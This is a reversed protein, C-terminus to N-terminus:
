GAEIRIPAPQEALGAAAPPPARRLKRNLFRSLPKEVMLHVGVGVLASVAVGLMLLSLDQASAPIPSRHVLRSVAPLVMVHTLYISYSADGLLKLGKIPRMPISREVGLAGAVTMIAFAVVEPWSAFLKLSNLALGLLGIPMLLAVGGRFSFREYAVGLLLGGVFGLMEFATFYRLVPYPVDFRSGILVLAAIAALSFLAPKKFLMGIFFLFYFFMEYNLTWGPVLFPSYEGNYIPNAFPIFFMSLLFDKVPEPRIHIHPAVFILAFLALWYLPAVRLLRRRAFELPPESKCATYIIFGSIVFFIDVGRAGAKFQYLPGTVDLLHDRAHHYVVMLAAVARLYQIQLVPGPAGRPDSLRGPQL